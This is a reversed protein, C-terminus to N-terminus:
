HLYYTILKRTKHSSSRTITRNNKQRCRMRRITSDWADINLATLLPVVAVAIACAPPTTERELASMEPCLKETTLPDPKPGRVTAFPEMPAPEPPMFPM